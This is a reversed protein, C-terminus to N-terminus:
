DTYQVAFCEARVRRRVDRGHIAPNKPPLPYFCRHHNTAHASLEDYGDLLILTKKRNEPDAFFTRVQASNLGCERAIYEHWETTQAYIEPNLRSLPLWLLYDFQPFLAGQAWRYAIHHCLTSKGIGAVGQIVVHKIDGQLKEEDFLQKIQLTKKSSLTLSAVLNSSGEAIEVKEKTKDKNAGDLAALRIDLDEVLMKKQAVLIEKQDFLLSIYKESLYKTILEEQMLFHPQTEEISRYIKQLDRISGLQRKKWRCKRWGEVEVKDIQGRCIDKLAGKFEDKFELAERNPIGKLPAFLEFAMEYYNFARKEIPHDSTAYQGAFIPELFPSPCSTQRNGQLYLLSIGGALESKGYRERVLRIEEAVGMPPDSMCKAKLEPTCIVIVKDASSIKEQFSKYDSIHSLDQAAYIPTVGIKQLDFALAHHVWSVVEEDQPSCCIFCKPTLSPKNFLVLAREFTMRIADKELLIHNFETYKEVFKVLFKRDIKELFHAYNLVPDTRKFFSCAKGMCALAKTDESVQALSAYSDAALLPRDLLFEYVVARMLYIHPQKEGKWAHIWELLHEFAPIGEKMKLFLVKEAECLYVTACSEAQLLFLKQKIDLIAKELEQNSGQIKLAAKLYTLIKQYNEASIEKRHIKKAEWLHYAAGPKTEFVWVEEPNNLSPYPFIAINNKLAKQACCQILDLASRDELVGFVVREVTHPSGDPTKLKAVVLGKNHYLSAEFDNYQHTWLPSPDM